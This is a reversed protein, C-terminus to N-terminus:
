PLNVVIPTGGPDVQNCEPKYHDYLFKEAGDRDSQRGISAYEFGCVYGSVQRRLCANDESDSLHALLRTELDQTQGVYFCRWKNGDKLKVWLLYIGSTTPAYKRVESESYTSHFSSWQIQM